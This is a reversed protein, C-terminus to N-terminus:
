DELYYLLVIAIAYMQLFNHLTRKLIHSSIFPINIIHSFYICPQWIKICFLVIHFWLFGYSICYHATWVTKQMNSYGLLNSWIKISLFRFFDIIAVDRDSLYINKRVFQHSKEKLFYSPFRKYFNKFNGSFCCILQGKSFPLPTINLNKTFLPFINKKAVYCVSFIKWSFPSFKKKRNCLQWFSFNKFIIGNLDWSASGLITFFYHHSFFEFNM